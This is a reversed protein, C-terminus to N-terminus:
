TSGILSLPKRELVIVEDDGEDLFPDTINLTQPNFTPTSARSGNASLTRFSSQAPPVIPAVFTARSGTTTPTQLSSQAPPVIPAVFTPSEPL